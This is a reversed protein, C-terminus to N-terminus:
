LPRPTKGGYDEDEEEEKGEKGEEVEEMEYLHITNAGFRIAKGGGGGAAASSRSGSGGGGGAAASGEGEYTEGDAKSPLSDLSSLISPSNYNSKCECSTAHMCVLYPELSPNMENALLCGARYAKEGESIRINRLLLPPLAESSANSLNLPPPAGFSTSSLNISALSHVSM